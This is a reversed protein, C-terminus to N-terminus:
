PATAGVAAKGAAPPTGRRALSRLKGEAAVTQRDLDDLELSVLALAAAGALLLALGILSPGRRSAAAFDIDLRSM